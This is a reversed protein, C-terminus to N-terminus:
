QPAEAPLAHSPSPAEAAPGAAPGPAPGPPPLFLYAPPGTQAPPAWGPPLTEPPDAPPGVVQLQGPETPNPIVPVEPVGPGKGVMREQLRFLTYKFSGIIQNFNSWKPGHFGDDGAFGIDPIHGLILRDINVRVSWASSSFGKVIPPMLRNLSFLTADPELVVENFSSSITNLDTLISRGSTDTGAISPFKAMLTTVNGVRQVLDAIQTSNAALADTAPGAAAVADALQQNKAKMQDVLKSTETLATSIQDSRANLRDLTHNSKKILNGFAEGQDGTAKGLGNILNTLNRIAGGNVVIAASSLLAEVTAAASTSELGITDGNQLMPANPQFPSPPRLAVFIDGLPTASRLEATTGKPLEVGGMIRLTTVATYNRAIMDSVEGVDAGGLKVKARAPLNLANEFIATLEIGDRRISGPAPLPM